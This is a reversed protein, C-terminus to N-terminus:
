AAQPVDGPVPRRDSARRRLASKQMYLAVDARALAADVGDHGEVESFGISAALRLEDGLRIDACAAAIAATIEASRGAPVRVVCAFEDGGFRAPVGHAEVAAALQRGLQQLVADGTAHGHTDNVGKFGDMDTIAVLVAEGEAREALMREAVAFFRRRNALGTLPDTTAMVEMRDHAAVITGALRVTVGSAIPAVILPIGVSEALAVVWDTYAARQLLLVTTTVAVSLVVSSATIAVIIATPGWRRYADLLRRQGRTLEPHQEM